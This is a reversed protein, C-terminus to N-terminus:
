KIMIISINRGYDSKKEKISRRASFFKNKKDFTDKKITEINHIGFCKLQNKIYEPLSFYIKGMKLNFFKKNKKNQNVFRRKFDNKVEYNNKSIAPGIITILNNKRSGTKVLYKVIKLVINKYAGKWGAHAVAIIKKSNDLIIVPACDATLIGLAIKNKNTILGDGTKKRKPIKNIYYFKNGHVQNLLILNKYSCGVKQCVIKLNSRIYNKNDNSGPGCNLSKYNGKSVGGISNFFGHTIFKYKKLKKSIIM